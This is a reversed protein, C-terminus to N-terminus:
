LPTSANTILRRYAFVFYGVVLMVGPVFWGLAISLGSDSTAANFVTLSAPGGDIAPLLDPYHGFAAAALMALIFACSCLFAPNHRVARTMMRIGALSGFALLPFVLGWPRTSYRSAFHPLILPVVLVLVVSIFAVALWSANAFDMARRQLTGETGRAVWLAGHMSLVAVSAIGFVITFWDLIGPGPGLQFNTWLPLFFYGTSDIPVGRLVNGLAVGFFLALLASGGAFVVDWFPTWVPSVIQNRFEMAIGRLILLWLVMMLPLYFGSFGSAYATPFAFFLTGGGAVLWVENGNWVPGISALLSRREIDTRALLLYVIGVGFDFGDLIAYAAFMLAVVDFWLTTM